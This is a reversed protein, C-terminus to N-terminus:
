FCCQCREMHRHTGAFKIAHDTLQTMGTDGITSLDRVIQAFQASPMKVVADYKSDPIGLHESDIDMLCLQVEAYKDEAPLSM